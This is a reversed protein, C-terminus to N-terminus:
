IILPYSILCVLILLSLSEKQEATPLSERGVNRNM